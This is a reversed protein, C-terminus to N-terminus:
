LTDLSVVGCGVRAGGGGLKKPVDSYNDGEEHIVIARGSLDSVQLRPAFLAMRARGEQDVLLVPMDGLHGRGVPGAHEHSLDPDYHGGAAKGPGSVGTGHLGCDPYEHVHFGHKGPKLGKLTPIIMLGEDTDRFVIEGMSEGTGSETLQKIDVVAEAAAVQGSVQVTVATLLAVARRM